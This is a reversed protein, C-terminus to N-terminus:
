GFARPDRGAWQALLTKGYGPPALIAAVPTHSSAELLDLLRDRLVQAHSGLHPQLKPELTLLSQSSIL